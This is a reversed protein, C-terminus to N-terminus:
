QLFRVCAASPMANCRLHPGANDFLLEYFSIVAQDAAMMYINTVSHVFDPSGGVSVRVQGGLMQISCAVSYIELSRVGPVLAALTDLFVTQRVAEWSSDFM